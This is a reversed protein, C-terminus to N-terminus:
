EILLKALKEDMQYIDEYFSIEEQDDVWATFYGIYVPIKNKLTYSSEKGANMAAEIKAPTWNRDDKLVMIALDKPKEVRICGHSFARSERGFLSKSPTDHMYINNSNPFMFKILGLSNSRGPRQRVDGNNWEMNHAALYDPNKKIAPLVENKIISPPLNWWPSFVIYSMNGAFIVTKTLTKGVVVPSEFIIKGDRYMSLKYSPINVIIFEKAAVIEPSVWRCREMNIMIKKIREGVPVNMDRILRPTILRDPNKGNHLQYARIAAALEADYLNSGNNHKLEGTLVLRQRIQVISNATDGQKYAKLKPDLDIPIWGGNKEIERYHQLSNKLKFYQPPLVKTEWNILWPSKLLSDLIAEYTLKKRPLLWGLDIINKDDIGMIKKDAIFLFMNTLMLETETASLTNEVPDIFIGEIKDRYPFASTVGEADLMVFKVYLAHAFENVNGGQTWIFNYHQKRYIDVADKEYKILGPYSNYFSTVQVSDFPINGAANIREKLSATLVPKPAVSGKRKCAVDFVSLVCIVAILLLRLKNM